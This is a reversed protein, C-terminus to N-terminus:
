LINKQKRIIKHHGIVAEEKLLVDLYEKKLKFERKAFSCLPIIKIDNKRAEEVLKAVLRGAIGQGGYSKEVFTHDIIWVKDSKLMHAKELSNKMM